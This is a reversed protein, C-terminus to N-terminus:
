RGQFPVLDQYPKLMAMIRNSMGWDGGTDYSITENLISVSKRGIWESSKYIESAYQNVAQQLPGPVTGPAYGATYTVTIPYNRYLWLFKLIRPENDEQLFVGSQNQQLQSANLLTLTTNSMVVSTIATVPWHRLVIDFNPRGNAGAGFGSQGFYNEVYPYTSGLNERGCYRGVLESALEVLAGLEADDGTGSQKLWAKLSAVTTLPDYAM